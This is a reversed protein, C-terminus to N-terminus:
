RIVCVQQAAHYVYELTSEFGMARLEAQAEPWRLEPKDGLTFLAETCGQEVGLRAVALMEGVTMYARMGPAPPMAFTCYGCTDRCLRTLPLFVKPSFTVASHGADRLRRAEVAMDRADMTLLSDILAGEALSGDADTTSAAPPDHHSPAPASSSPPTAAAKVLQPVSRARNGSGGTPRPVARQVILASRSPAEGRVRARPAQSSLSIMM